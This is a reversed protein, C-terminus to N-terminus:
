LTYLSVLSVDVILLDFSNASEKYFPRFWNSSNAFMNVMLDMTFSTVIYDLGFFIVTERSGCEPLVQAGLVDCTFDLIIIVTLMYQWENSKIMLKRRARTMEFFRHGYTEQVYQEHTKDQDRKFYLDTM